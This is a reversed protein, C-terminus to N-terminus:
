EVFVLNYYEYLEQLEKLSKKGFNRQSYFDRVSHKVMDEISKIGMNKLINYLRVSLDIDWIPKELVKKPLLNNPNALISEYRGVIEKLTLYEQHSLEM